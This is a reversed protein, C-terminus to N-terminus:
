TIGVAYLVSVIAEPAEIVTWLPPAIQREPWSLEEPWIPPQFPVGVPGSPRM